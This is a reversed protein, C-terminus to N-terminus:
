DYRARLTSMPLPLAHRGIGTLEVVVTFTTTYHQPGLRAVATHVAGVAAHFARRDLRPFAAAKSSCFFIAVVVPPAIPILAMAENIPRHQM